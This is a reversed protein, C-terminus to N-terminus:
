SIDIELQKNGYQCILPGTQIFCAGLAGAKSYLFGFPKLDIKTACQDVNHLAHAHHHAYQHAAHQNQAAFQDALVHVLIAVIM